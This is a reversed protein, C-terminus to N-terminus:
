LLTLCFAIFFSNAVSMPYERFGALALFCFFISLVLTALLITPFFSGTAAQVTELLTSSLELVSISFSPKVALGVLLGALVANLIAKNEGTEM